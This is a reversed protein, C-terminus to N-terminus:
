RSRHQLGLLSKDWAISCTVFGISCDCIIQVSLPFNILKRITPSTGVLSLDPLDILIEFSVM